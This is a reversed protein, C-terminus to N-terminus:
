PRYDRDVRQECQVVAALGALCAAFFEILDDLALVGTLAETDDVVPLRRVIPSFAPRTTSATAARSSSSMGVHHSRMLRAVDIVTDIEGRLSWM